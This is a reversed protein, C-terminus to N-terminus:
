VNAIAVPLLKLKRMSHVVCQENWAQILENSVNYVHQLADINSINKNYSHRRVVCRQGVKDFNRTIATSVGGCYRGLYAVNSPKIRSNWFSVEYEEDDDYHCYQPCQSPNGPFYPCECIQRRRPDRIGSASLSQSSIITVKSLNPSKSNLVHMDNKSTSHQGGMRSSQNM